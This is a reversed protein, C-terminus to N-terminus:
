VVSIKVNESKQTTQKRTSKCSVTDDEKRKKLRKQFLARQLIAVSFAVFVGVALFVFVGLLHSVDVQGQNSSDTNSDGCQGTDLWHSTANELWGSSRLKMVNLSFDDRYPMNKPMAIGYGQRNFSRGVIHVDCPRQSAFYQLIPLDWIFVYQNAPDTGRARELGRESNSVPSLNPTAKMYKGMTQFPEMASSAFFEEVSSSKVTGYPVDSQTALEQASSISSTLRQFTLFAALNATYTAVVILIFFYWFGFLIRAPLFNAGEPGTQLATTLFFWFSDYLKHLFIRVVGRNAKEDNDDGDRNKQFYLPTITQLLPFALSVVVVCVLAFLWSTTSFPGLFAFYNTQAPRPKATLLALGYDMWPKTFEVYKMRHSTIALPGFALDYRCNYIEGMLGSADTLFGNVDETFDGYLGSKEIYLDYTFNMRDKLEELLDVIIGRFALAGSVNPNHFLFPPENITVIRFHYRSNNRRFAELCQKLSPVSRRSRKEVSSDLLEGRSYVGIKSAFLSSLAIIDYRDHIRGNLHTDFRIHGGVAVGDLQSAHIRLTEPNVDSQNLLMLRNLLLLGDYLYAANPLTTEYMDESCQALLHCTRSWRHLWEQKTGNESFARFIGLAHVDPPLLRRVDGHYLFKRTIDETFIWSNSGRWKSLITRLTRFCSESSCHVVIVNSESGRLIRNTTLSQVKSVEIGRLQTLYDDDSETWLEVKLWGRQLAIAKAVGVQGEVSHGM